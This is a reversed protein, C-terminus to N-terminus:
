SSCRRDLDEAGCRAGAGVWRSFLARMSPPRREGRRAEAGSAAAMSASAQPPGDCGRIVFVSPCAKMAQRRREGRMM